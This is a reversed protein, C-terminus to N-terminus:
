TKGWLISQNANVRTNEEWNGFNIQQSSCEPLFYKLSEWNYTKYESTFSTKLSIYINYIIYIILINYIYFIYIETDKSEELM